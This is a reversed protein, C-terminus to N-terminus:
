TRLNEIIRIIQILHKSSWTGVRLYQFELSLPLLGLPVHLKKQKRNIVKNSSAQKVALSSIFVFSSCNRPFSGPATLYPFKM